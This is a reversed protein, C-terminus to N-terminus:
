KAYSVRQVGGGQKSLPENANRNDWVKDEDLKKQNFGNANVTRHYM